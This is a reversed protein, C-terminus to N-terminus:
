LHPLRILPVQEETAQELDQMISSDRWPALRGFVLYGWAQSFVERYTLNDPEPWPTSNWYDLFQREDLQALMSLTLLPWVLRRLYIYLAQPLPPCWQLGYGEFM